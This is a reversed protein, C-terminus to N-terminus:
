EAGKPAGSTKRANACRSVTPKETIYQRPNQYKMAVRHQHVHCNIEFGFSISRGGRGREATRQQLEARVAMEIVTQKEWTQRGKSEGRRGGVGM